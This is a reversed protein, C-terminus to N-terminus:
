VAIGARVSFLKQIHTVSLFLAIITEHRHLPIIDTPVTGSTRMPIIKDIDTSLFEGLILLHMTTLDALLSM